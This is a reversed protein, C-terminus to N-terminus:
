FEDAISKLIVSRRGYDSIWQIHLHNFKLGNLAATVSIHTAVNEPFSKFLKKSIIDQILNLMTLNLPSSM